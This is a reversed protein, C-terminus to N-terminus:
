YLEKGVVVFRGNETHYSCTSLTIFHDGYVANVGTDYLSLKKINSYFSDFEEWSEINCCNYYKFVFDNEYYVQSEFVAVVEYTRRGDLTDLFILNHKEMYSKKRYNLLGGFMAGSKMNHGHIIWNVNESELDCGASVLLSGNRNENGYFDRYLYYDEEQPTQMVPYDINTDPITLWGAIDPNEEKLTRIFNKEEEGSQSAGYIENRQEKLRKQQQQLMQYDGDFIETEEQVMLTVWAIVVLLVTCLVTAIVIAHKKCFALLYFWLLVVILLFVYLKRSNPHKKGAASVKQITQLQKESFKGSYKTSQVKSM